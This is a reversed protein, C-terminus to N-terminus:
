RFNKARHAMKHARWGIKMTLDNSMYAQGDEM